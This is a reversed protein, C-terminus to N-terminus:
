DTISNSGQTVILEIANTTLIVTRIEQAGEKKPNRWRIRVKVKQAPITYKGPTNPQFLVSLTFLNTAQGDIYLTRKKNNKTNIIKFPFDILDITEIITHLNVVWDNSFLEISLTTEEGQNIEPKILHLNITDRGSARFKLTKPQPKINIIIAESELLSQNNKLNKVIAKIVIQESKLPVIEFRHEVFVTQQDTAYDYASGSSRKEGRIVIDGKEAILKTKIESPNATGYTKVTIELVEFRYGWTQNSEIVPDSLQANLRLTTIFLSLFILFHKKNAIAMIIVIYNSTKFPDLSAGTPDLGIERNDFDIGNIIRFVEIEETTITANNDLLSSRLGVVFSPLDIEM